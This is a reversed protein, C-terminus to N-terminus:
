EKDLNEENHDITVKFEEIWKRVQGTKSLHNRLAIEGLMVSDDASLNLVLRIQNFPM